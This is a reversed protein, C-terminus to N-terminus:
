LRAPIGEAKRDATRGDHPGHKKEGKLVENLIREARAMAEPTLIDLDTLVSSYAISRQQESFRKPEILVVKKGSKILAEIMDNRTLTKGCGRGLLVYVTDM